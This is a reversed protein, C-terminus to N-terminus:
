AAKRTVTTNTYVRKYKKRLRKRKVEKKHEAIAVFGILLSIFGSCYIIYIILEDIM